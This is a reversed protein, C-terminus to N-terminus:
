EAANGGNSPRDARVLDVVGAVARALRRSEDPTFPSTDALTVSVTVGGQNYIAVAERVADASSVFGAARMAADVDAGLADAIKTVVKESARRMEGTSKEVGDNELIGLYTASVGSAAALRAKNWGKSRM